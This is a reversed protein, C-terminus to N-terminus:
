APSLGPDFDRGYDDPEADRCPTPGDETGENGEQGEDVAAELEIPPRPLPDDIAIWLDGSTDRLAREYADLVVDHLYRRTARNIPHAVDVPKRGPSECSPMAVFDRGDRRVLKVGKVAFEGNLTLSFYALLYGRDAPLVRASTIHTRGDRTLDLLAPLIDPPEHRPLPDDVIIWERENARASFRDYADFLVREIYHRMPKEIPHAVDTQDGPQKSRSPMAVFRRGDAEILKLGKVAFDHNMTFNAYGCLRRHRCPNIRVGTIQNGGQTM